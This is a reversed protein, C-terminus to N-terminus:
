ASRRLSSGEQISGNRDCLKTRCGTAITEQEEVCDM